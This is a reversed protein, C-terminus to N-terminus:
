LESQGKKIKGRGKGVPADSHSRVALPPHVFQQHSAPEPTAPPLVITPVPHASRSWVGCETEENRRPDRLEDKTNKTHPRQGM